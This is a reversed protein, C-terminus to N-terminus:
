SFDGLDLASLDGIVKPMPKPYAAGEHLHHFMQQVHYGCSFGISVEQEIRRIYEGDARLETHVTVRGTRADCTLEGHTIRVSTPQLTQIYAIVSNDLRKGNFQPLVPLVTFGSADADEWPVGQSHRYREVLDTGRMKAYLALIEAREEADEDRAM